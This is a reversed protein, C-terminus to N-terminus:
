GGTGPFCSPRGGCVADAPRGLNTVLFEVTLKTDELRYTVRLDFDFPYQRKTEEDAKLSFVAMENRTIM